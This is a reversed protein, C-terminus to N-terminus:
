RRALYHRIKSAFVATAESLIALDNGLLLDRFSGHVSRLLRISPMLPAVILM